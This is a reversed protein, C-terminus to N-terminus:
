EIAISADEILLEYSYGFGFDRNVSIEGRVLLTSGIDAEGTTTIVLDEAGAPDITGDRLHIWNKGLVKETYKAVKGRVMVEQGALLDKDRLIERITKGGEAKAIGSVDIQAPAKAQPVPSHPPRAGEQDACPTHLRTVFYVVDFTRELTKSEYNPMPMSTSFSVVDGAQLETHPGAVWVKEGEADVHVYTYSGVDIREIVTGTLEPPPSNWGDQSDAAPAVGVLVVAALTSLLAIFRPMM